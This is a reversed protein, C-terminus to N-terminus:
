LIVCASTMARSRQLGGDCYGSDIATKYVEVTTKEGLVLGTQVPLDVLKMEAVELGISAGVKTGICAGRTVVEGVQKASERLAIVEESPKSSAQTNVLEETSPSRVLPIAM